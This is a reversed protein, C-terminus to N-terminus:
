GKVKATDGELGESVTLKVGRCGSPHDCLQELSQWARPIQYYILFGQFSHTGNSGGM